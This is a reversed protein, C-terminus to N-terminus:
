VLAKAKWPSVSCFDVFFYNNIQRENRYYKEQYVLGQQNFKLEVIEWAEFAAAIVPSHTAFLFQAKPARKLCCNIMETQSEAQLSREPEDILIITRETNLEFLPMITFIVKKTGTSWAKYPIEINNGLSLIKPFKLDESCKFDLSTKILVSFKNLIPNLQLALKEISTPTEQKWKKYKEFALEGEKANAEFAKTIQQSHKLEEMKYANLGELIHLWVDFFTDTEFDFVQKDREDFRQYTKKETTKFPSNPNGLTETIQQNVHKIIEAPYSILINKDLYFYDLFETPTVDDWKKLFSM